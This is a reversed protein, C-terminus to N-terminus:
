TVDKRHPEQHPGQCSLKLPPGDIPDGCDRCNQTGPLLDASTVERSASAALHDSSEEAVEGRVESKYALNRPQSTPERTQEALNRSTQSGGEKEILRHLSPKGKGTPQVVVEGREEALEIARRVASWGVDHEDKMHTEIAKGSCDPHDALYEQIHPWAEDAAADKRSGGAITLHRTSHDYSLLSEPAFVDRGYASFWRPAMPDESDKKVLKWIATPWDLIRSDGRSREGVHGMHHIVMSQPVGAEWLLEDFAALFRGSDKDESLGLADLFARLCDLLVVAPQMPKLHAAWRSRVEPNLIDFTSARGLMPLVVVRYQHRIGHARLWRRLMPEDLENDIIVITGETIPRVNFKGLFRVGDALSRVVEDRATTKGAKHQASFMIKGRKPWIEDMLYAVPEDPPALFEDLRILPPFTVAGREEADLIKRAKRRARQVALEHPLLRDELALPSHDPETAPPYEGIDGPPPATDEYPDFPPEDGAHRGNLGGTFGADVQVGM